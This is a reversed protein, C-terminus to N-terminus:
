TNDIRVINGFQSVDGLKRSGRILVDELNPCKKIDDITELSYCNALDLSKLKQLADIGALSKLKRSILLLRELNILKKMDELNESQYNVINLHKLNTCNFVSRAKTRWFVQFHTLSKFESFDPAKTFECELGIHEIDPLFQLPSIDKISLKSIEVSRLGLGSLGELFDINTDTWGMFGSLRIGSVNKHKIVKIFDDSWASKLILVRGKGWDSDRLEYLKSTGWAM